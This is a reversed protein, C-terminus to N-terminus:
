MLKTTYYVALAFLAVGMAWMTYYATAPLVLALLIVGFSIALVGYIVRYDCTKAFVTVGKWQGDKKQLARILVAAAALAALVLVVGVTVKLNWNVTGLGKRCLWLTFIAGVMVLANFFFERQFLCYVLGMVIVIPVAVCLYTAGEPYINMSILGTLAFFVGAGALWLGLRGLSEQRKWVALVVGVMAAVVGLYGAYEVVYSWRVMEQVVGNAFKNYVMLLWCEAAIGVLFITFVRNLVEQEKRRKEMRKENSNPKNAM